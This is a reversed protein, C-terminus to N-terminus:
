CQEQQLQLELAHPLLGHRVSDFLKAPVGSNPTSGWNYWWSVGPFLVQLDAASALDYAIGRKPSKTPTTSTAAALHTEVISSPESTTGCSWQM